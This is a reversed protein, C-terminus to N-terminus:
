RRPPDQGPECLFMVSVTYGHVFTREGVPGIEGNCFFGASAHPSFYEAIVGADHSATKFLSRGRGGCSFVVSAFPTVGDAVLQSSLHRLDEDAANADRLQFQVTQGVRPFAGIAVVGSGEDAGLINRILFDGRAFDERDERMALGAFLNGRAKQREDDSLAQYAEDLVQYAPRSGMTQILNHEAGTVPLATGIPRCGQSVLTHIEVGGRLGVAIAGGEILERNRYVFMGDAERGGSALGGACPVGPFARNWAGLWPEIPLGAPDAFMIWASADPMGAADRWADTDEWDPASNETFVAAHLQTAPLHLLLLSFGSAREAEAGTGILGAGSCGVLLPIHAHVQLIELFDELNERYDPSCFVIGLSTRGGIEQLAARATETVIAESFKSLVLRSVAANPM